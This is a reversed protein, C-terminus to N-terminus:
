EIIIKKTMASTEFNIKLIYIGKKLGSVDIREITIGKNIHHLLIKGQINLIWIERIDEKKIFEINLYKDAPNPYIKVLKNTSYEVNTVSDEENYLSKWDFQYWNLNTGVSNFELKMIHQGEKLVMETTYSVWVQWDATSSFTVNQLLTDNIFVDFDGSWGAHRFTVDYVGVYSIDLSYTLWDDVDIYGVNEGGGEDATVETQTGSKDLYDEAEIRFSKRKGNQTVIISDTLLSQSYVYIKGTRTSDTPNDTTSNVLVTANGSGSTASISIWDVSPVLEWETNGEFVLQVDDGIKYTLNINNPSFSFFHPMSDTFNRNYEALVAGTLFVLGSNIGIAVENTTYSCEADLYSKASFTSPYASAGCDAGDGSAAGGVLMGPIPDVIGDASSIRHHPHMPSKSGFGTVFCYTTANKGLLYDLSFLGANFYSADGTLRFAQMFMMGWNAFANNGAWYYFDGPIRYPSAAINNKTGSVANIFKDKIFDFDAIETLSDQHVLLSLLGLSAVTPWGPVGFSQEFNIENYYESDKTTIYLEAACWTFEDDFGGDSYEGTNVGPYGGSASPNKFVINPNTKAWEWAKTAMALATDALEPDYKRFIRATMAMVAAFDLTAATSKATVYRNSVAESPMVFGSFNANTTKNYVGGDEDQMTIMWKINYLAEDLIDPINNNSEPININLTDYFEPYTEYASLLTFVTGGSSVIYKNYDGADYWGGPTSIITGAPRSDTAASPLVIVATDPHGADRAWLGGFESLIQTSARNFYYYKLTAKLIDIFVSDSVQFPISKGLGDVVLVYDGPDTMLTFDALFVDEGSSSYYASPLFQGEYVTTQLDSTIVKFSDSQTNVVVALKVSNPLFGVQNLRINYTLSQALSYLTIKAVVLFLLINKIKMNRPFKQNSL